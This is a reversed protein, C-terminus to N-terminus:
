LKSKILKFLLFIGGSVKLTALPMFAVLGWAMIASVNLNINIARAVNISSIRDLFYISSRYSPVDHM